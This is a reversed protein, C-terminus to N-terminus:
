AIKFHNICTGSSIISSSHEEGVLTMFFIRLILSLDDSEDSWTYFKTMNQWIDWGHVRLEHFKSTPIQPPKKQLKKSHDLNAEYYTM